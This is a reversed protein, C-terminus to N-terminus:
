NAEYLSEGKLNNNGSIWCAPDISLFSGSSIYSASRNGGCRKFYTCGGCDSSARNRIKRLVPHRLFLNELNSNLVNGLIYDTRSSVKLNGKYDVVLGQFGFKGSEGLGKDILNYLPQDTNTPTNHKHSYHVIKEMADRLDPGTLVEDLGRSVLSEGNGTPMLRTFNMSHIKLSKALIFFDEIQTATNKSLVSQLVVKIGNEHLLKIGQIAKEFNGRGRIGDHSLANSGDLSVQMTINYQKLRQAIKDSIKTGNTLVFIKPNSWRAHIEELFPFLIPSILPEGGCIIISPDLYLKKILSDYQALIDTWDNLTLAGKNNHHSQYCHTCALNCANTIDFQMTLYKQGGIFKIAKKIFSDRISLIM